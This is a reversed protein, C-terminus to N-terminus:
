SSSRVLPPEAAQRARTEEDWDGTCYVRMESIRDDSVTALLILRSYTEEGHRNVATQEMELAFGGAMEDVRHSVVKMTGERYGRCHIQVIADLGIAQYRWLPMNVDWFVDAVFVSHRDRWDEFFRIVGAALEGVNM